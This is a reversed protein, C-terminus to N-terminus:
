TTGGNLAVWVLVVGNITGAVIGLVKIFTLSGRMEDRWSELQDIRTDIGTLRNPLSTEGDSRSQWRELDNLRPGITAPLTSALTVEMSSIKTSLEAIARQFDNNQKHRAESTDKRLAEIAGLIDRISFGTPQDGSM